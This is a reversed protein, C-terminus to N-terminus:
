QAETPVCHHSTKSDKHQMKFCFPNYKVVCTWKMNQSHIWGWCQGWLLLHRIVHQKNITWCLQPPCRGRTQWHTQTQSHYSSHTSICVYQVHTQTYLIDHGFANIYLIIDAALKRFTHETRDHRSQLWHWCRQLHKLIHWYAPWIHFMSHVCACTYTCHICVMHAHCSVLWRRKISQLQNYVTLVALWRDGRLLVLGICRLHSAKERYVTICPRVDCVILSPIIGKSLVTLIREKRLFVEWHRTQLSSNNNHSM